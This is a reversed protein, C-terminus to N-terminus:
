QDNDGRVCRLIHHVSESLDYNHKKLAQMFLHQLNGQNRFKENLQSYFLLFATAVRKTSYDVQAM